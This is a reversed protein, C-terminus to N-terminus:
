VFTMLIDCQCNSSAFLDAVEKVTNKDGTGPEVGPSHEICLSFLDCCIEISYKSPVTRGTSNM